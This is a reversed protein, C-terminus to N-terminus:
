IESVLLGRKQTLPLYGELRTQLDSSGFRYPTQICVRLLGSLHKSVLVADLPGWDFGDFDGLPKQGISTWLRIFITDLVVSRITSLVHVLLAMNAASFSFEVRFCQLRTVQEFDFHEHFEPELLTLLRDAVAQVQFTPSM